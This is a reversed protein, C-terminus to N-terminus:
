PAGGAAAGLGPLDVRLTGDPDIAVEVMGDRDTRLVAIGRQRLRGLVEPSPHHYPNHRGVSILGWRPHAAALFLPSSSTRSGHHAVKLVDCSLWPAEGRLLRAEGRADLDGTLLVRRGFAEAALVLSSGNGRGADGARPHLARLRWRGVRAREGAWLIRRRTGPTRALEGGCGTPPLTPPTWVEPVPLYALLDLLGGCHDRDGHTVVVADLNRLGEGLLAPLLVRGGFDGHEWGGGDVLIAHAGDRLLIADGQGVDLLAMAVGPQEAAREPCHLLLLLALPLALLRRPRLLAHAAVLALGAAALGGVALPLALPVTGRVAAPWGFPAALADLVPMAALAAPPAVLALATWALATVLCLATWPMAVLNYLPGLPVLLHFAPLAWPLVAVQAAVSAALPRRLWAPLLAWRAEFAPALLLLGASAAVTLQFGLDEVAAPRQLALLGAALALSNAGSPPREVLLAAVTLTAMVSARLLAPRPGVLLLYVVIAGLAAALRLSRRLGLTLLLAAGAVLGVHLGSVALLHALGCRRLGQSWAVPVGSADGLVLARALAAGPHGPGAAALVEELPHRLGESLRSLPGPPREARWLRRSKVRLRWPGPPVPLRNWYGDSRSLYGRARLVTGPPPTSEGAPLSLFVERPEFALRRGQRLRAVALPASSFGPYHRWSGAVEGMAEVPREPDLAAGAAPLTGRVVPVLLGCAAWAVLLGGRRGWALGGGVLALAPLVAPRSLHFAVAIGALLCAAPLLAPAPRRDV